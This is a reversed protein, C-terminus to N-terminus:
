NSDPFCGLLYLIWFLSVFFLTIAIFKWYDRSSEYKRLRVNCEHRITEISKRYEQESM